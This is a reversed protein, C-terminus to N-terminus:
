LNSKLKLYSSMVIFYKVVFQKNISWSQPLGSAKLMDLSLVWKHSVTLSAFPSLPRRLTRYQGAVLITYIHSLM